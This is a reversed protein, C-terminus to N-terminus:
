RSRGRRAIADGGVVAVILLGTVVPQLATPLNLLIMVNTIVGLLLVGVVTRAVDGKGGFLSTGGIVVATLAYIEFGAGVNFDAQGGYAGVLM